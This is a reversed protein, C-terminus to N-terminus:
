QLMKDLMAKKAVGPAWDEPSGEPPTIQELASRAADYDEHAFFRSARALWNFAPQGAPDEMPMTFVTRLDQQLPKTLSSASALIAELQETEGKLLDLGLRANAILELDFHKDSSTPKDQHVEVAIVNAGVKLLGKPITVEYWATESIGRGRVALTTSDVAGEPLHQRGIEKGNVYVVAGDDCQYRVLPNSFDSLSEITFTRRFYSTIPRNDETGSHLTTTERDDGFGFSGKGNKWKSDDFKLKNWAKPQAKGSDAVKWEAGKLFGQDLSSIPSQWGLPTLVEFLIAALQAHAVQEESSIRGLRHFAHAALHRVELNDPALEIAHSALQLAERASSETDFALYTRAMVEYISAKELSPLETRELTKTAFGMQWLSREPDTEYTQEALASLAKPDSPVMRLCEHIGDIFGDALLFDKYDDSTWTSTPSLRRESPQALLWQAWQSLSGEEEELQERLDLAMSTTTPAFKGDKRIQRGGIAEALNPVWAPVGEEPIAPALDLRSITDRWVVTVQTGDPTFAVKPYRDYQKEFGESEMLRSNPIRLPKMIEEETTLDYVSVEATQRLGNQVVSLCAGLREEPGFAVSLVLGTQKLPKTLPESTDFDWLRFNGDISGTLLRKGDRSLDMGFILRANELRRSVPEQDREINWLTLYDVYTSALRSGDESMTMVIPRSSHNMQIPKPNQSSLHWLLVSRGSRDRDDIAALISGDSNACGGYLFGIGPTNFTDQNGTRLHTRTLEDNLKTFFTENGLLGAQRVNSGVPLTKEEGTALEKSRMGKSNISAGWQGNDSLMWLRDTETTVPTARAVSTRSSWVAVKGQITTTAYRQGDESFGVGVVWGQGMATEALFQGTEIDWVRSTTDMSCTLLQTGDPSFDMGVVGSAHTAEFDLPEQTKLDWIKAKSIASQLYGIALQSSDPSFRLGMVATAEELVTFELEKTELNIIKVSADLEAIALRKGDESVVGGPDYGATIEGGLTTVENWKLDKWTTPPQGAIDLVYIKRAQDGFISVCVLRDGTDPKSVFQLRNGEPRPLQYTQWDEQSLDWMQLSDASSAVWYSGDGGINVNTFKTTGQPDQRILRGSQADWLRLRAPANYYEGGDDEYTIALAQSGENVLLAWLIGEGRHDFPEGIVKGTSIDFVALKNDQNMALARDMDEDFSAIFTRSLSTRDGTELPPYLPSSFRNNALTSFLKIAASRNTPDSKLSRALHAVGDALRDERMVHGALLFDSESAMKMANAELQSAKATLEKQTIYSKAFYAVLGLLGLCTLGAAMLFRRRKKGQAALTELRKKEALQTRREELTELREALQGASDFRRKPDVDVCKDIIDCLLEDPIDRRWGSALPKNLDGVALQFLMVGLSYIDGKPSANEGVLYEPPAYLQTMSSHGSGSESDVVISQTFGAQTIGFEGLASEDTVAGIGFDALRPQPKDDKISILINSPKIDKHVIGVSHAADTARASRAVIDLRTEVPIKDLGGEKEIWQGLNGNPVYESELYFPPMEISVDYLAAIDDRKGLADRLLRFLTLERRFSRLREPDFCFKFVRAEKTNIHKALWVEGFGGQGLKKEIVWDQLRPIELGAGPRWGLTDEEDAAVARKAKGGGEPPSLPAMGEAGVEYIELPDDNGKFIYRGHAPWQLVASEPLEAQQPHERVFQRADDFVARTMLIQNGEALDMVRAALNIAMGVARKTGRVGEDMETVAGLNLGICLEMKEGECVEGHLAAQLRLATNVAETPTDFRVLFGDGTENLIHASPAEKMCRKFIEDHRSVFKTYTETGLKNQLAVSGVIDTFMLAALEQKPASSM